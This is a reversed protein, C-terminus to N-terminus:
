KIALIEINTNGGIDVKNKYGNPETDHLYIDAFRNKLQDLTENYPKDIWVTEEVTIKIKVKM